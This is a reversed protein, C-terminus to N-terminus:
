LFVESNWMKIPGLDPLKQTLILEPEIIGKINLQELPPILSPNILDYLFLYFLINMSGKIALAGFILEVLNVFM